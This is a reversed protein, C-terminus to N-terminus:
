QFQTNPININIPEQHDMKNFLVIFHISYFPFNYEKMRILRLTYKKRSISKDTLSKTETYMKKFYWLMTQLQYQVLSTFINSIKLM